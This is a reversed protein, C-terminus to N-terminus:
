KLGFRITTRARTRVPEGDVRGPKFRWASLCQIVSDNFITEPAAEIIKIDTVHGETTVTFEAAVWGEIGGAKARFPYVPPIRSIVTLPQDLDGPAFSPPLPVNDLSASMVDPVIITAPGGPLRTNIEFPLSLRLQAPRNMGPRAAPTKQPEAKVVPKPAKQKPEIKPRRLRTLQIEPIMPGLRPLTDEPTMLSPIASFLLLNLALTCAIAGTWSWLSGNMRTHFFVQTM